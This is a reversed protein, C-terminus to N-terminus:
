WTREGVYVADLELSTRAARGRESIFRMMVETCTHLTPTAPVGSLIRATNILEWGCSAYFTRLPEACFLIALDADSHDLFATAAAVVKSAFGGHRYAPYTFVSSIGGVGLTRGGHVVDRFNVEGHSVLQEGDLVVFTRASSDPPVDWLTAGQADLHSWQIRVYSRIQIAIERPVSPKPFDCLDLM